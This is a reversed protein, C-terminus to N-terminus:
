LKRACLYGGINASDFTPKGTTNNITFLGELNVRIVTPEPILYAYNYINTGAGSGGVEKFVFTGPQVLYYGTSLDTKATGTWETAWYGLTGEPAYSPWVPALIEPHSYLYQNNADCYGSGNFFTSPKQMTAYDHRIVYVGIDVNYTYKLAGSKQAAYVHATQRSAPGGNVFTVKGTSDVSLWPVDTSWNFDSASSGQVTINFYLNDSGSTPFGSNVAYQYGNGSETIVTGAPFVSTIYIINVDKTVGSLVTGSLKVGVTATGGQMGTLTATYTGDGKNTTGSVTSGSLNTTFVVTADNIPNSNVDKLTLTLASTETGDAKIGAKSAVLTSTAASAAGPTLAVDATRGTLEVGNVSVGVTATGAVSGKLTATYVGNGTDSANSLTVGTVGTSAFAVTANDILNGNADKLTLTLTSTVANDAVISTPNITLTSKTASAVGVKFTVTVSRTSGNVSATVTSAGSTTSTLTMTVTGDPGTKGTAAINASNTASFNVTVDPVANGNADTVTAKVSNTAVGNAVADNSQVYLDGSAIRVTSIDAKLTVMTTLGSVTMGNVTAGVTVVGAVTGATLTTTYVGNGDGSVGGLVVGSLNSTFGIVGNKIPNGYTDKLTLTVVSTDAGNAVIEPPVATFKSLTNSAAGSVFVVPVSRTSGNVSATVTSVGSATSTLAMTVTGDPGTKGTAAINASNTASFNVTVDPVANGNADTVTAKVSNTGVGNAVANDSLVVLNGNVIRATAGDPTLKVVVPAVGPNGGSVRASVSADGAVTGTMKATYTGNGKDSVAGFTVGALTSSFTVPLGPVANGNIDKLTLTVTSADNGSAAISLPTASLASTAPEINNGDPMFTVPVSRTGGNVSATVTSTGSVTSTLTMTVTGDSSTTGSAAIVASNTATFSVPMDPVPNGSADTVTAKVSNTAVNDAVADDSLVVLNGSAIEATSSDAKLTLAGGLARITNGGLAASFTVVGARVGTVQATYNGSGAPSEETASVTLEGVGEGPFTLQAAKGKVPNGAIDRAKLQLTATDHGDAKITTPTITLASRGTDIDAAVFHVMVSKNVAGATATVSAAGAVRSTIDAVAKGNDDTVATQTDKTGDALTTTFTVQQDVVSHGNSDGITATVTVPSIGNAPANDNAVQLAGDISLVPPLVTVVVTQQPSKNGKVDEADVTLAYTNLSDFSPAASGKKTAQAHQATRYQPLTLTFRSTDVQKVQGGAAVLSDALVTVTQLGYKAKVSATVPWSSGAPGTIALTNLSLVVLDQKRYELIINNNRDVLDYRSAELLRSAAVSDASLQSTLSDGPRWTVGLKFNTENNGGKGMREDVGVTLLPFPTWSLGATVSYPNRQRDDKGFLAVENGYYQEYMLKGGLQPYAPLWGQARVDFGNAPREDYDAFDRSQHWDNLRLYTNGSFQLYDTRAEAGLGVRRNNGTMDNDFFNNFGYMWHPTFWRVGWGLNVTDRGDKNRIGLQTFLMDKPTDYLPVLWDISSGKLSFRDDLNLQAQVTGYHGLWNQVAENAAGSVMSRAMGEAASSTHSSELLGGLTQAHEALRAAENDTQRPQSVNKADPKVENGTTGKGPFVPTDPIDFEDGEGLQAFPKHFTRFQNFAQLEALTYGLRTAVSDPTEGARLVYPSAPLGMLESPLKQKSSAISEETATVAVVPLAVTFLQLFVCLRAVNRVAKLTFFSSIGPM